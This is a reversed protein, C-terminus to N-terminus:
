RIWSFGADRRVEIADAGLSMEQVCGVDTPRVAARLVARAFLISLDSTNQDIRCDLKDSM